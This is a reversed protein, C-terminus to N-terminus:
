RIKWVDCLAGLGSKSLEELSAHAVGISQGAGWAIAERTGHGLRSASVRAGSTDPVIVCPGTLTKDLYQKTPMRASVDGHHLSSGEQNWSCQHERSRSYTDCAPLEKARSWGASSTWCSEVGLREVIVAGLEERSANVRGVEWATKSIALTLGDARALVKADVGDPLADDGVIAEGRVGVFLSYKLQHSIRSPVKQCV